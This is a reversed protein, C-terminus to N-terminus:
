QCSLWLFKDDGQGVANEGVVQPGYGPHSFRPLLAPLRPSM